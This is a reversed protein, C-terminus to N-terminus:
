VAVLAAYIQDICEPDQNEINDHLCLGWSAAVRGYTQEIMQLQMGMPMDGSIVAEAEVARLCERLGVRVTTVDQGDYEPLKTRRAVSQIYAIKEDKSM